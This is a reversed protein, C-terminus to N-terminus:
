LLQIPWRGCLIQQVPRLQLLAHCIIAPQRVNQAIWLEHWVPLGLQVHLLRLLRLLAGQVMGRSGMHYVPKMQGQCIQPLSVMITRLRHWQAAHMCSLDCISALQKLSLFWALDKGQLGIAPLVSRCSYGM